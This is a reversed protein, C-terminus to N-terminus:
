PVPTNIVSLYIVMIPRAAVAFYGFFSSPSNNVFEISQIFNGSEDFVVVQNYSTIFIFGNGDTAISYPHTLCYGATGYKGVYQGDLNFICICNSKYDVVLLQNNVNVAVGYASQLQDSGFCMCLKGDRHFVSIYSQNNYVVSVYVRGNHTTIGHPHGQSQSNVEGNPMDSSYFATEM